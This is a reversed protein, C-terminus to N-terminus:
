VNNLHPDAMAGALARDLQTREAADWLGLYVNTYTLRPITKGGLYRLDLSADASFGPALVASRYAAAAASNPRLVVNLPHEAVRTPTQSAMASRKTAAASRQRLALTRRRGPRPCGRCRGRARPRTMCQ